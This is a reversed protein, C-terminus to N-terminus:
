IGRKELEVGKIVVFRVDKEILKTNNNNLNWM